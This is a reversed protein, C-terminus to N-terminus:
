RINWIDHTIKWTGDEGKKAVNMWPGSQVQGEGEASASHIEYTGWSSLMDGAMESGGFEIMVTGDATSQLFAVIADHGNVPPTGPPFRVADATYLAAVAEYDGANFHTQWQHAIEKMPSSEQAQLTGSVALCLGLVGILIPRYKL